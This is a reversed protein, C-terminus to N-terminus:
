SLPPVALPPTSVVVRDIADVTFTTGTFSAGVSVAVALLGVNVSAAPSPVCAAATDTNEPAFALVISDPWVMLPRVKVTLPCPQGWPPMEQGLWEIAKHKRHYEAWEGIHKAIEPTAATVVFNKTRFEAALSALAGLLIVAVWRRAVM